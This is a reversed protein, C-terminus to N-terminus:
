NPALWTGLVHYPRKQCLKREHITRRGPVSEGLHGRPQGVKVKTWSDDRGFDKWSWWRVSSTREHYVEFGQESRELFSRHGGCMLNPPRHKHTLKGHFVLIKTNNDRCFCGHRVGQGAWSLRAEHMETICLRHCALHRGQEGGEIRVAIVSSTIILISM